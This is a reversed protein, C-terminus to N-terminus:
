GHSERDKWPVRWFGWGSMAAACAIVAAVLAFARGLAVVDLM